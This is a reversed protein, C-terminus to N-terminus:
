FDAFKKNDSWMTEFEEDWKAAAVPDRDIIL